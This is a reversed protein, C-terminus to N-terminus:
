RWAEMRDLTEELARQFGGRERAERAWRDGPRVDRSRILLLEELVPDRVLASLRAPDEVVEHMEPFSLGLALRAREAFADRARTSLLVQSFPLGHYARDATATLSTLAGLAPGRDEPPTLLPSPERTRRLVYVSAVLAVVALLALSLLWRLTGSFQASYLFLGVVIGGGVLLATEFYLAARTTEPRAPSVGGYPWSADSVM